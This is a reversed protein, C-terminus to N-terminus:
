KKCFYQLIDEKTKLAEWLKTDYSSDYFSYIMQFLLPEDSPKFTGMIILRIKHSNWNIRHELTMISLRTEAAPVLSHLFLLGSRTAYSTISDRRLIDELYKASVIGDKIFDSAMSEIITFRDSFTEKEHWYANVLLDFLTHNTVPCLQQIRRKQIYTSLNQYDSPAMFSSIQITDTTPNDTIKKQVTVLVLDTTSFDYASKANVPLLATLHIYNDFAALIKRKLAWTTTLNLHCCIVTRLKLEPHTRYLFELAGSLCHAMNLLETQNLYYGMYELAIDQFLYALEYEVMLNEKAIDVNGQTNFTPIPTQLYRIYQLLTIYFDEDASFDLRFVQKMKDLYSHAMELIVPEFYNQVTQFTLPSANMRYGSTIYQYIDDQEAQPFSCIFQMELSHFISDTACAAATDTRSSINNDPLFHGSQTRHYMIAIALNLSVLSSDEMEIQYKSLHLPIEDMIYDLIEPNLFHYGYYANGKTNYNWDENFLRNLISRRKKEDSEFELTDKIQHLRIHPESLVYKMKLFHLDHELTTHSVFMEDELDYINLAEDSLCLRFALYRVRDEKSFFATDIQNMELIRDPAQAKFIYGKSKESHIEANYPALIRNIEAVDSRITRPSVNLQKALERGTILVNQYQLIHLLKRQRLSLNLSPM